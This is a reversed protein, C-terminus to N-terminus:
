LIKVLAVYFKFGDNALEHVFEVLYDAVDMNDHFVALAADSYSEYFQISILDIYEGYKALM